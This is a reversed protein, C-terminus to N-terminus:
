CVQGNNVAMVVIHKDYVKFMEDYASTKEVKERYQTLVKTNKEVNHKRCQQCTPDEPCPNFKDLVITKDRDCLSLDKLTLPHEPFGPWMDVDDGGLLQEGFGIHQRGQFVEDGTASDYTAAADGLEVNTAPVRTAAGPFVFTDPKDNADDNKDISTSARLREHPALSNSMVTLRYFLVLACALMFGVASRQRTPIWGSKSTTGRPPM